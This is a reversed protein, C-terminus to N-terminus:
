IFRWRPIKRHVGYRLCDPPDDDQKLPQEVGRLAAKPDWVYTLLKAIGSKCRTRHFRIKRRSMLGAVTQIGENVENDAETVWIGRLSLEARFSACEPPIIVQCSRNRVEVLEDPLGPRQRIETNMFKVLDDAYQGDTKQRMEARSDWTYQDAVWITDGDDFFKFYIQPHDVGCDVSVWEDVHGGANYLGLPTSADDYTLEEDGKPGWADTYIAGEAMVWNGLIYRQYFMGTFSAKLASKFEDSLNPNDDMTCRMHDVFPANRPDDLWVKLPHMPSDPNTTGYLRAGAPSLRTQLMEYFGWPMLVLEDCVAVGITAGRLFKESGEDKAGMVMWKTGFLTLLGSQQNYSYHKPGILNFLDNLVNTFISQKSSGTLFRWGGVPYRCAYLIKPHLSWTKGSRVSGVLISFRKDEELPRYAFRKLRPGYNLKM